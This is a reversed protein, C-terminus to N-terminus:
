DGMCNGGGGKGTWLDEGLPVGTKEEWIGTVASGCKGEKEQNGEKGTKGPGEERGSCNM